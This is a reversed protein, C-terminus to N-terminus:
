NAATKNPPILWKQVTKNIAAQLTQIDITVTQLVHIVINAIILWM